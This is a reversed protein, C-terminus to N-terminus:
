QIWATTFKSIVTNINAATGSDLVQQVSDFHNTSLWSAVQSIATNLQADSIHYNDRSSINEIKGNTMYNKVTLSYSQDNYIVLNNDYTGDARVNVYLKLYNKNGYATRTFNISDNGSKDYIVNQSAYSSLNDFEVNYIDNGGEGYIFNDKVKYYSIDVTDNGGGLYVKYGQATYGFAITDQGSGTKITTNNGNDNLSITNQGNGVIITNNSSSSYDEIVNNGDEAYVTNYSGCLKITNNGDEAYVTNYTSNSQFAITDNGSSIEDDGYGCYVVNQTGGVSIKDNGEGGYVVSGEYIGNDFYLSIEDDGKGLDVYSAYNCSVYDNGDGAYIENHPGGAIIRDNGKGGILESFGYDVDLYDDGDGGDIYADIFSVLVDNGGYGYIKDAGLKGHIVDNRDTGKLTDDGNTGILHKGEIENKHIQASQKIAKAISLTKDKTQITKISSNGKYYNVVTLSDNENGYGYIFLDYDRQEFYLKGFNVKAFELIDSAGSTSNVIDAGDGKEFCFKNVGKGGSLIDNGTGGVIKDNGTGGYITDNGAEGYLYNVDYQGYLKDNGAGGYLKDTGKGGVLKDNGAYGYLIDNGAEGNITDAGSGGYITDNGDGGNLKNAYTSKKFNIVDNGLGANVTLVKQWAASNEWTITDKKDTGTIVGKSNPKLAM